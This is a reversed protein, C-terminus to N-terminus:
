FSCVLLAFFCVLLAFFALWVLLSFFVLTGFRFVYVVWLFLVGSAYAFFAVFSLLV